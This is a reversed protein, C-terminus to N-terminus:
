PTKLNILDVFILCDKLLTDEISEKFLTLYHFYVDSADLQRAQKTELNVM